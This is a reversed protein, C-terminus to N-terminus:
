AETGELIFLCRGPESNVIHTATNLVVSGPGQASVTKGIPLVKFNSFYVVPCLSLLTIVVEYKCVRCPVSDSIGSHSDTLGPRRNLVPLVSDM